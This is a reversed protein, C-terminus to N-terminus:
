LQFTPESGKSKEFSARVTKVEGDLAALIATVNEPTRGKSYASGALNGVRRIARIAANVRKNGLRKFKLSPDAKEAAKQEASMKPRKPAVKAKPDTTTAM